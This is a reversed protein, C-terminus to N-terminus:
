GRVTAGYWASSMEGLSVEGVLSASSAVFNQLGYKAEKGKVAVVRTSPVVALTLIAVVSHAAHSMLTPHNSRLGDSLCERKEVYGPTDQFSQGIRDMAQGAKRAAAGFGKVFWPVKVLGAM